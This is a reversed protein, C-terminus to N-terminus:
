FAVDSFLLLLCIFQLLDALMLVLVVDGDSQEADNVSLFLLLVLGGYTPLLMVILSVLHPSFSCLHYKEPMKVYTLGM